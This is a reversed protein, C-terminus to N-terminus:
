SRMCCLETHIHSYEHARLRQVCTSIFVLRHWMHSAAGHLYQQLQKAYATTDELTYRLALLTKACM